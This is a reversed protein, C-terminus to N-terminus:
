QPAILAFHESRSASNRKGNWGVRCSGHADGLAGAGIILDLYFPDGAKGQIGLKGLDLRLVFDYGGKDIKVKFSVAKEPKRAQNLVTAGATRPLLFYQRTTGGTRAPRLFLEITSASWPSREDIKVATDIVRGSLELATGKVTLVSKLLKNAMFDVEVPVGGAGAPKLVRPPNFIYDRGLVREDASVARVLLSPAAEAPKLVVRRTTTEGAGLKIALAGAKASLAVPSAEIALKGSFPKNGENTATLEFEVPEGTIEALPRV